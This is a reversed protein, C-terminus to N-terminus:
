AGSRRVRDVRFRQDLRSSLPDRGRHLREVKEGVQEGLRLAVSLGPRQPVVDLRKLDDLRLAHGELHRAVMKFPLVPIKM